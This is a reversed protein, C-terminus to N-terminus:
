GVSQQNTTIPWGLWGVTRQETALFYIDEDAVKHAM